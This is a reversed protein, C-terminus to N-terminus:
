SSSLWPLPEVGLLERNRAYAAHQIEVVREFDGPLARRMVVNDVELM